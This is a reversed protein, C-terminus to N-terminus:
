ASQCMEAAKNLLLFSTGRSWEPEKGPRAEPKLGQRQEPLNDAMAEFQL